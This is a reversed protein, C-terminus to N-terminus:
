STPFLIEDYHPKKMKRKYWRCKVYEGSRCKIFVEDRGATCKKHDLYPCETM